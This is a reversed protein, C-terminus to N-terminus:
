PHDPKTHNIFLIKDFWNIDSLIWHNVFYTPFFGVINRWTLNTTIISDPRSVDFILCILSNLGFLCPTSSAFIPTIKKAERINWPHLGFTVSSRREYAIHKRKLCGLVLVVADQKLNMLTFFYIAYDAHKNHMYKMYQHIYLGVKKLKHGTNQGKTKGPRFGKAHRRQRIPRLFKCPEDGPSKVRKPMKPLM